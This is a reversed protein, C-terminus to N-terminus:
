LPKEPLRKFRQLPKEVLLRILVSLGLSVPIIFNRSGQDHLIMIAQSAVYIVAYHVVYVPYSLEGCFAVWASSPGSAQLYCLALIALLPVVVQQLLPWPFLYAGAMLALLVLCGLAMGKGRGDNVMGDRQLRWAWIGGCFVSLELPLFRALFPYLDAYGLAGILARCALGLVFIAVIIKTPWKIMWPALLYFTLEISLTWAQPMFNFHWLSNLYSYSHPDFYLSGDPAVSFYISWDQGFISLQSAGSLILAAKSPHVGNIYWSFLPGLAHGTGLAWAFAFAVTLLLCAIYAPWLRLYRNFYFSKLDSGYRTELVMAMYFGSIVYFGLVAATADIFSFGFFSGAHASVVALALWLRILGM